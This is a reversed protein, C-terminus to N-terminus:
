LLLDRQSPVRVFEDHLDPRPPAIEDQRAHEDGRRRPRCCEFSVRQLDVEDRRGALFPTLLYPSAPPARAACRPDPSACRPAEPPTSTPRRKRARPGKSGYAGSLLLYAAAAVIVIALVIAFIAGSPGRSTQQERGIRAQSM